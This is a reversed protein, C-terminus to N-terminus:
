KGSGLIWLDRAPDVKVSCGKTAGSLLTMSIGCLPLLMQKQELERWSFCIGTAGAVARFSLWKKRSTSFGRNSRSRSRNTAGTGAWHSPLRSFLFPGMGCLPVLACLLFRRAQLRFM